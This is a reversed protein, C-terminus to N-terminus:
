NADDDGQLYAIARVLGVLKEKNEADLDRFAVGMGPNLNEGESRVPNIWTVVGPLHLAVGDHVFRLDLETGIEMPSENQIFIGMESINQIYSYLFTEGSRCDVEIKTPYREHARREPAKNSDQPM